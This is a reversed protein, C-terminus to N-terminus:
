SSEKYTWLPYYSVASFILLILGLPGCLLLAPLPTGWQQACWFWFGYSVIYLVLVANTANISGFHKPKPRPWFEKAQERSAIAQLTSRVEMIWIVGTFLMAAVALVIRLELGDFLKSSPYQAVGAGLVTMGAMFLTLQKFRMEGYFRINEVLQIGKRDDDSM